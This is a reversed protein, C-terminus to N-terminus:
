SPAGDVGILPRPLLGLFHDLMQFHDDLLRDELGSL